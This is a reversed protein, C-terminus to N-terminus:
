SIANANGEKKKKKKKLQANKQNNAKKLPDQASNVLSVFKKKKVLSENFITERCQEYM